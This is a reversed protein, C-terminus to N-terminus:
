LQRGSNLLLLRWELEVLLALTHVERDRPDHSVSDEPANNQACVVLAARNGPELEDITATTRLDGRRMDPRDFCASGIDHAVPNRQRACRVPHEIASQDAQRIVQLYQNRPLRIVLVCHACKDVLGTACKRRQPTRFMRVRMKQIPMAVVTELLLARRGGKSAGSEHISMVCTTRALRETQAIACGTQM